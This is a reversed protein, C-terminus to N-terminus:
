LIIQPMLFATFMGATLFPGMPIDTKLFKVVPIRRQVLAYGLILAGMIVISLLANQIGLLFGMAAALKIDGAGVRKGFMGPLAFVLFCAGFGLLADALGFSPVGPLGTLGGVALLLKLGLVALVTQNPIIRYDWDMVSVAICILLLAVTCVRLVLGTTAAGVAASVLAAILTVLGAARKGLTHKLGRADQLRGIWVAAGAGCAAGILAFCIMRLVM